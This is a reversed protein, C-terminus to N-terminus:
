KGILSNKQKIKLSIQIEMCKGKNWKEGYRKLGKGDSNMKKKTVYGLIPEKRRGVFYSIKIIIGESISIFIKTLHTM